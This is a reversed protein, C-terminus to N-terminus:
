RESGDPNATRPDLHRPKHARMRREKALVARLLARLDSAGSLGRERAYCSFWRLRTRPGINEPASHLLQALDKVIWRRPVPTECRARGCDLLALRAPQTDLVAFHQLYLDRHFWNACHLLAVLRALPEIWARAQASDCRSLRQRLHEKHALLEMALASRGARAARTLPLARSAPEEAWAIPKPVCLGLARLAALNEGERRAPSRLTAGRSFEHWWESWADGQFRKLVVSEGHAFTERGPVRRLWGPPTLEFARAVFAQPDRGPDGLEACLRSALGRSGDAEITLVGRAANTFDTAM